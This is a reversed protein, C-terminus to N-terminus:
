DEQLLLSIHPSNLDDTDWSEDWIIDNGLDIEAESVTTYEEPAPTTVIPLRLCIRGNWSCCAIFTQAIKANAHIRLYAEDLDTKGVLIRKTPWKNRMASIM